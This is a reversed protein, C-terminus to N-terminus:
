KKTKRKKRLRTKHYKSIMKGHFPSEKICNENDEYLSLWQLRRKREHVAAEHLKLQNEMLRRERRVSPIRKFYKQAERMQKLMYLYIPYGHDLHFHQPRLGVPKLYQPEQDIHKARTCLDFDIFNKHATGIAYRSFDGDIYKSIDIDPNNKEMNELLDTRRQYQFNCAYIQTHLKHAKVTEDQCQYYWYVHAKTVLNFMEYCTARLALADRPPVWHLLYNMTDQTLM